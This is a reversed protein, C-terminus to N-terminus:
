RSDKKRRALANILVFFLAYIAILSLILSSM